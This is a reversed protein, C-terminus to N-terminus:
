CLKFLLYYFLCNKWLIKVKGVCTDTTLIIRRSDNKSVFGSYVQIFWDNRHKHNKKM